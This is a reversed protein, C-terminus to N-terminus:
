RAEGDVLDTARFSPFFRLKQAKLEKVLTDSGLLSRSFRAERWFHLGSQRAPDVVVDKTTSSSYFSCLRDPARQNINVRSREVIISDQKATVNVTFWPGEIDLGRKTRFSVPFFQHVEPDFRELVDRVPARAVMLGNTTKFIDPWAKRPKDAVLLQPMEEPLTRREGSRFAGVIEGTLKSEEGIYPFRAKWEPAETGVTNRASYPDFVYTM